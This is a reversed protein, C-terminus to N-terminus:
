AAAELVLGVDAIDGNRPSDGHDHAVLFYGNPSDAIWNFCYAGDSGSVTARVPLGTYKDYLRVRYAGVVGLETVTGGIKKAGGYVIDKMILYASGIVLNAM